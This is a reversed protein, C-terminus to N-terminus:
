YVFGYLDDYNRLTYIHILYLHVIGISEQFQESFCREDVSTQEITQIGESSVPPPPQRM